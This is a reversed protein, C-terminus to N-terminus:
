FIVFVNLLPGELSSQHIGKLYICNFVCSCINIWHSLHRSDNKEHTLLPIKHSNRLIFISQYISLVIIILSLYILLSQGKCLMGSYIYGVSSCETLEKM